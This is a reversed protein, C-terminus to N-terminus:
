LGMLNDWVAETFMGTEDEQLLDTYPILKGVYASKQNANLGGFYAKMAILDAEEEATLIPALNGTLLSNLFTRMVGPLVGPSSNIDGTLYGLMGAGWPGGPLTIGKDPTPALRTSINSM